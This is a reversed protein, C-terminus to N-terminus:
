ISQSLNSKKIRRLESQIFITAFITAINHSQLISWISTWSTLYKVGRHTNGTWSVRKKYIEKKKAPLLFKSFLTSVKFNLKERERRRWRIKKTSTCHHHELHLMLLLGGGILTASKWGKKCCNFDANNVCRDNVSRCIWHTMCDTEILWEYSEHTTYIVHVTKLGDGGRGQGLVITCSQCWGGEKPWKVGVGM